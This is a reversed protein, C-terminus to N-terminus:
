QRAPTTEGRTKHQQRAGNVQVRKRMREHCSNEGCHGRLDPCILIRDHRFGVWSNCQALEPFDENSNRMIRVIRRGTLISVTVLAWKSTSCTHHPNPMVNADVALLGSDRFIYRSDNGSTGFAPASLSASVMYSEGNVTFSATAFLRQQTLKATALDMRRRHTQVATHQLRRRLTTAPETVVEDNLRLALTGQLARVWIPPPRASYM